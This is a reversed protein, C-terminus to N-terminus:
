ARALLARWVEAAARELAALDGSNEIIYDSRARKHESPLQAAIMRDAEVAGLGRDQMLRARRVAEPAEVLVVVDFASPDAAEFLLPIDTVVIREGRARAEELLLNRRQYVAPHVIRNLDSLAAPDAMVIARLSGRDLAGDRGLVGEGFRKGIARLVASGPVQAERVLRDMDIVVAGWREFHRAVTSKGSAINGTLAPSLM